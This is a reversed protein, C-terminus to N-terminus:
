KSRERPRGPCAANCLREELQLIRGLVQERPHGAFHVDDGAPM